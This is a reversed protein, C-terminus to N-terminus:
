PAANFLRPRDHPLANRRVDTPRDEARDRVGYRATWTTPSGRSSRAHQRSARHERGLGIRIGAACEVVPGPLQDRGRPRGAHRFPVDAAPRFGPAHDAEIQTVGNVTYAFTGNDANAFTLTGTGVATPVVLAPDFPAANFPPGPNRVPHRRVQQRREHAARDHVAVMGQRDADYTFWTAFIIDGQHAINLGWGSESGAPSKWWLGQYAVPLFPALADRIAKRCVACFPEGLTRMRCDYSPRYCGCHMYRAGKYAGVHDPAHPNPQPDCQGCDANASTPLADVTSSLM